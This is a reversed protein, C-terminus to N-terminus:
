STKTKKCILMLFYCTKRKKRNRMVRHRCQKHYPPHILSSALSRMFNGSNLYKFVEASETNSYKLTKPIKLIKYTETNEANNPM